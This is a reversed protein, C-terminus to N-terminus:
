LVQVPITRGLRNADAVVRRVLELEIHIALHEVRNM